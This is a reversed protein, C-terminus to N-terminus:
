KELFNSVRPFWKNKFNFITIAIQMKSLRQVTCHYKPFMRVKVNSFVVIEDTMKEFKCNYSFLYLSLSIAENVALPNQRITLYKLVATIVAVSRFTVKPTNLYNVTVNSDHVLKMIFNFENM